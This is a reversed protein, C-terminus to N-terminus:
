WGDGDAETWGRYTTSTTISSGDRATVIRTQTVSWGARRSKYFQERCAEITRGLLEAIEALLPETGDWEKLWELEDTSWPERHHEAKGLSEANRKLRDRNDAM